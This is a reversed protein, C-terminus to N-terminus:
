YDKASDADYNYATAHEAPYIMATEVSIALLRFIANGSLSIV